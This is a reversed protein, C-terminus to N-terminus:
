TSTAVLVVHSPIIVGIPPILQTIPQVTIAIPARRGGSGGM